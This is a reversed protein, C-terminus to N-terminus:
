GRHLSSLDVCYQTCREGEMGRWGEMGGERRGEEGGGACVVFSFFAGVVGMMGGRGGGCGLSGDMGWFVGGPRGDGGARRTVDSVVFVALDHLACAWVCVIL